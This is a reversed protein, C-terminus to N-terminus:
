FTLGVIQFFQVTKKLVVLLFFRSRPLVAHMKIQLITAQYFHPIDYRMGGTMEEQSTALMRPPM